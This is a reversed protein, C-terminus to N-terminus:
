KKPQDKDEKETKKPPKPPPDMTQCTKDQEKLTLYHDLRSKAIRKLVLFPTLTESDPDWVYQKLDIMPGIDDYLTVWWEDASEVHCIRIKKITDINKAMDFAAARVRDFDNIKNPKAQKEAKKPETGSGAAKVPKPTHSSPREAPKPTNELKAETAKSSGEAMKVPTLEKGEAVLPKPSSEPKITEAEIPKKGSKSAPKDFVVADSDKVVENVGVKCGSMLSGLVIIVVAGVLLGSRLSVFALCSYKIFGLFKGKYRKESRVKMSVSRASM